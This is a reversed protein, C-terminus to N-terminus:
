FLLGAPASTETTSRGGRIDKITQGIRALEVTKQAQLLNRVFPMKNGGLKGAGYNLALMVGEDTFETVPLRQVIETNSLKNSLDERVYGYAVKAAMSLMSRAGASAFMGSNKKKRAM